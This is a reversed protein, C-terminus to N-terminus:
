RGSDALGAARELRSLAAAANEVALASSDARCREIMKRLRQRDKKTLEAERFDRASVLGAMVTFDICHRAKGIDRVIEIRSAAKMVLAGVLSPRRVTGCRGAARIEVPESRGLAQSAGPAPLTPAGGAGNRSSAIAGVGEPILVDVQALGRTWRHQLGEGTTHPTFGLDRLASTFDELIRPEARVDVVADIDVTPRQPYSGREACHLHVLQGGVMTWHDPLVEYVDMLGHWSAAQADTMAPLQIVSPSPSSDSPNDDGTLGDTM